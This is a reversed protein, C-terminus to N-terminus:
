VMTAWGVATVTHDRWTPRAVVLGEPIMVSVAMRRGRKVAIVGQKM